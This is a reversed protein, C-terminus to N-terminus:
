GSVYDSQGGDEASFEDWFDVAEDGILNIKGGGRFQITLNPTKVGAYEPYNIELAVIENIDFVFKSLKKWGNKM